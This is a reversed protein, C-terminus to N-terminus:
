VGVNNVRTLLNQLIRPPGELNHAGCPRCFPYDMNFIWLYETGHHM